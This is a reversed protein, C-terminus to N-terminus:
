RRRARVETFADFQAKDLVKGRMAALVEAKTAGAPLRLFDSLAFAKFVYRWREVAM